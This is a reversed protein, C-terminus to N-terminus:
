KIFEYFDLDYKISNIRHLGIKYLVFSAVSSGRGVGWIINNEKMIDVLYKLYSLLPLLDREAYELLEMGCRQLETQDNCQELIWKTIDFNKYQEPMFWISQQAKHFDEITLTIDELKTLLPFDSYTDKVSENYTEPDLLQLNTIDLDPTKYLMLCVDKQTLLVRGYKDKVMKAVM